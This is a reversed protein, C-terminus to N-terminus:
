KFIIKNIKLKAANSIQRALPDRGRRESSFESWFLKIIENQIFIM